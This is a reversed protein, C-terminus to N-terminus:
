RRKDNEIERAVNRIKEIIESHNNKIVKRVNAAKDENDNTVFSLYNCVIFDELLHQLIAEETDESGFLYHEKLFQAYKLVVGGLFYKRRENEKRRMQGDTQQKLTKKIAEQRTKSEAREIESKAIKEIKSYTTLANLCNFFGDQDSFDYGLIEQELATLKMSTKSKHRILDLLDMKSEYSNQQRINEKILAVEEITFDSRKHRIELYEKQKKTHFPIGTIMSLKDLDAKTIEKKPRGRNAMFFCESQSLSAFYLKIMMCQWM